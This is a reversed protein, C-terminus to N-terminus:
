MSKIMRICNECLEGKSTSVINQTSGCLKCYRTLKKLEITDRDLNILLVTGARIGLKKRMEKPLVIRGLGDIKREVM